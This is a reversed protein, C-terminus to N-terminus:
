GARPHCGCGAWSSTAEPAGACASGDASLLAQPPELCGCPFPRLASVWRQPSAPVRHGWARPSPTASGVQDRRAVSGLVQGLGPVQCRGLYGQVLVSSEWRGRHHGVFVLARSGLGVCTGSPQPVALAVGCGRCRLVLTGAVSPTSQSVRRCSECWFGVGCHCLCGVDVVALVLVAVWRRWPWGTGDGESTGLTPTVWRVEGGASVMWCCPVQM